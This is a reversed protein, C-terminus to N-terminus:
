DPSVKCKIKLDQTLDEDDDDDDDDDDNDGNDDDNDGDDGDDANDDDGDDADEAEDDQGQGQQESRHRKLLRLLGSCREGETDEPKKVNIKYYFVHPKAVIRIRDGNDVSTFRETINFSVTCTIQHIISIGSESWEVVTLDEKLSVNNSSELKERLVFWPFLRDFEAILRTTEPPPAPYFNHNIIKQMKGINNQQAAYDVDHDSLNCTHLMYTRLVSHVTRGFDYFRNDRWITDNNVSVINEKAFAENYPPNEYILRGQQRLEDIVDRLLLSFPDCSVFYTRNM